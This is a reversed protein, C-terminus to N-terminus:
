FDRAMTSKGFKPPGDTGSRVLNKKSILARHAPTLYKKILYEFLYLTKIKPGVELKSKWTYYNYTHGRRSITIIMM